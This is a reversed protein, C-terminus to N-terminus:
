MGAGGWDNFPYFVYWRMIIPTGCMPELIGTPERCRVVVRSQKCRDDPSPSIMHDILTMTHTGIACTMHSKESRARTMKPSRSKPYGNSQGLVSYKHYHFLLRQPRWVNRLIAYKGRVCSNFGPSLSSPASRGRYFCFLPPLILCSLNIEPRQESSM